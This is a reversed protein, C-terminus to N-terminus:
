SNQQRASLFDQSVTALLAVARGQFGLARVLTDLLLSILPRMEGSPTAIKKLLDGDGAFCAFAHKRTEEVESLYEIVRASTSLTEPLTWEFPADWLNSTIGGCTQEVVGASRLIFVGVSASDSNAHLDGYLIEFPTTEILKCSRAHLREFETDFSEIVTRESHTQVSVVEDMVFVTAPLSETM